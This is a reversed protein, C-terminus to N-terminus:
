KGCPTLGLAPSQIGVPVDSALTVSIPSVSYVGMIKCIYFIIFNEEIKESSLEGERENEKISMKTFKIKLFYGFSYFFVCSFFENNKRGM